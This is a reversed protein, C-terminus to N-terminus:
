QFWFQFWVTTWSLISNRSWTLIAFWQCARSQSQTNLQTRTQLHGCSVCRVWKTILKWGFSFWSLRIVKPTCKVCSAVRKRLREGFGIFGFLRMIFRTCTTVSVSSPPGLTGCSSSASTFGWWSCNIQCSFVKIRTPVFTWFTFPGTWTIRFGCFWFWLWRVISFLTRLSSWSFQM